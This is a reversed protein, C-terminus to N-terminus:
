KARWLTLWIILILIGFCVNFIGLAIQLQSVQVQNKVTILIPISYYVSIWVLIVAVSLLIRKKMVVEITKYVLTLIGGPSQVILRM